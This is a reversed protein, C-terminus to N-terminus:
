GIAADGGGDGGNLGGESVTNGRRGTVSEGAKSESPDRWAGPTPDRDPRRTPRAV